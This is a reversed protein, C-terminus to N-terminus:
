GAHVRKIHEVLAGKHVFTKCCAECQSPKERAHVREHVRLNYKQGFGAGCTSCKWKREGVHVTKIHLDMSFKRTFTKSCVECKFPKEGTHILMHREVRSKCRFQYGCVTCEWKREKEHVRRLHVSLGHASPFSKTCTHCANLKRDIHVRGTGGRNPAHESTATLISHREQETKQVCTATNHDQDRAGPLILLVDKIDESFDEWPQAGNDASIVLFFLQEMTSCVSIVFLIHCLVVTLGRNIFESPKHVACQPVFKKQTNRGQYGFQSSIKSSHLLTVRTHKVWIWSCFIRLCGSTLPRPSFPLRGASILLPYIHASINYRCVCLSLLEESTFFLHWLVWAVGRDIVYKSRNLFMPM